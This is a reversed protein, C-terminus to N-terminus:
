NEGESQEADRIEVEVPYKLPLHKGPSWGQQQDATFAQAAFSAFEVVHLIAVRRSTDSM